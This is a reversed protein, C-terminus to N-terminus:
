KRCQSKHLMNPFPMKLETFPITVKILRNFVNLPNILRIFMNLSYTELKVYFWNKKVYIHYIAYVIIWGISVYSCRHGGQARLYWKAQHTAHLTQTLFATPEIAPPLSWIFTKMRLLIIEAHKLLTLNLSKVRWNYSTMIETTIQTESHTPM